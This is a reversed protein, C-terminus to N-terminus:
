LFSFVFCFLSCPVGPLEAVCAPVRAACDCCCSWAACGPQVARGYLVAWLCPLVWFLPVRAAARAPYHAATISVHGAVCLLVVCLPAIGGLSRCVTPACLLLPPVSGQEGRVHVGIVGVAAAVTANSLIDEAIDWNSDSGVIVTSEFGAGDLTARLTAIYDTTYSRENWLGVATPVRPPFATCGGPECPQSYHVNSLRARPSHARGFPGSGVAM